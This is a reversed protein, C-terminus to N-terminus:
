RVWVPWNAWCILATSLAGVLWLGVALWEDLAVQRNM